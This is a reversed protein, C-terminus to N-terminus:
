RPPATSTLEHPAGDEFVFPFSFTRDGEGPAPFRLRELVAKACDAFARSGIQDDQWTFAEVGGEADITWRAVIRGAHVDTRRAAKAYCAKVAGVHEKVVAAAPSTKTATESTPAVMSWFPLARLAPYLPDDEDVFSADALPKDTVLDFAKSTSVLIGGEGDFYTTRRRRVGTAGATYSNFTGRLRALSGSARFCYEVVHAWNATADQFYMSVLTGGEKARSIVAETNPARGHDAFARLEPESSFERWEGQRAKPLAATSVDAFVRPHREDLRAERCEGDIEKARAAGPARPGASALLLLLAFSSTM